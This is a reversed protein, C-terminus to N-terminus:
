VAVPPLSWPWLPPAIISEWQFLWIPVDSSKYCKWIVVFVLCYVRYTSSYPSCFLCITLMSPCLMFIASQKSSCYSVSSQM